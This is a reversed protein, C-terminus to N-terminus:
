EETEFLVDRQRSLFREGSDVFLIQGTIARANMLFSVSEAIDSAQPGFGLPSQSQAKHFGSETQEPSPLTHGPAVANVRIRPALGRALAKTMGLMAFRSATYSLYDPNPSAVKQDLINVVSGQSGDPLLDSFSRILMTQARANVAMHSDWSAEDVTEIDDHLFLSANNVLGSIPGISDLCRSLLAHASGTMSLDSQVSIANQGISEIEEVLSRAESESTQYHVVISSGENALRLCIERGIRRAGGTVLVTRGM